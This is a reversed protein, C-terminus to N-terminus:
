RRFFFYWVAAAIVVVALLSGDAGAPAAQIDAALQSVEQDNMAAVRDMAQNPDVGRAQLQSAVDARALTSIVLGRDAQVSGAAAQDAGIMGAGATQFSLALMSVILARCTVKKMSLSM